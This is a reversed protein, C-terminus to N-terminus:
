RGSRYLRRDRKSHTASTVSFIASPDTYYFCCLLSCLLRKTLQAAKFSRDRQWQWNNIFITVEIVIM